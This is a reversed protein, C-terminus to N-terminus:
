LWRSHPGCWGGGKAHVGHKREKGRHHLWLGTKEKTMIACANVRDMASYFARSVWRKLSLSTVSVSLWRFHRVIPATHYDSHIGMETCYDFTIIQNWLTTRGWVPSHNALRHHSPFFSNAEQTKQRGEGGRMYKCVQTCTRTCEYVCPMCVCMWMYMCICICM